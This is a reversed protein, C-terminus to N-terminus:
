RRTDPSGAASAQTDEILASWDPRGLRVEVRESPRMFDHTQTWARLRVVYDGLRDTDVLPVDEIGFVNHALQVFQDYLPRLEAWPQERMLGRLLEVHPWEFHPLTLFLLAGGKLCYGDADVIGGIARAVQTVQAPDRTVFVIRTWANNLGASIGLPATIGSGVGLLLAYKVSSSSVNMAPSSFPGDVFISVAQHAQLQELLRATWSRAGRGSQKKILFSLVTMNGASRAGPLLRDEENISTDMAADHPAQKVAAITFPHREL